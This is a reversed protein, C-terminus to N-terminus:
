KHPAAEKNKTMELRSLVNHVSTRHWRGGPRFTPVKLRNLESAIKRTSCIGEENLKFLLPQLEKAFKYAAAKNQLALANANKGLLVGRQKAAQLASKTNESISRRQEEAVAALIHITFRNAHPNDAVIIDVPLKINRAIEEVDRGLRDLRAVILAAQHKQCLAFANELYVRRKRTSKVEQIEMLLQFGNSNCHHRVAHQQAELGLGSKGQKGTSVRYYAIVLKM